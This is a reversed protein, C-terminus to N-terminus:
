WSLTLELCLVLWIDALCALHLMSLPCRQPPRWLDPRHWSKCRPPADPQHSPSQFSLWMCGQAPAMQSFLSADFRWGQSKNARLAPYDLACHHTTHMNTKNALHPFAIPFAPCTAPFEGQGSKLQPLLVTTTSFVKDKEGERM